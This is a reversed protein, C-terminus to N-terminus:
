QPTGWPETGPGVRNAKFISGWIPCIIPWKLCMKNLPATQVIRGYKYHLINLFHVLYPSLPVCKWVTEKPLWVVQQTNKGGCMQGIVPTFTPNTPKPFLFKHPSPPESAIRSAADHGRVSSQRWPTSDRHVLSGIRSKVQNMWTKKQSLFMTFSTYIFQCSSAQERNWKM